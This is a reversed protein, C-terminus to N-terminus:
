SLIGLVGDGIQQTSDMRYTQNSSTYYSCDEAIRRRGTFGTQRAAFDGYASRMLEELGIETSEHEAIIKGDGFVLIRDCINVLEEYEISAVIIAVGTSACSVLLAFIDRKAGVVISETPEHRRLGDRYPRYRAMGSAVSRTVTGAARLGCCAARLLCEAVAQGSVNQSLRVPARGLAIGPRGTALRASPVPLLSAPLCLDRHACGVTTSAPLRPM